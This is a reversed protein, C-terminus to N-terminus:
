DFGEPRELKILVHLQESLGILRRVTVSFGYALVAGILLLASIASWGDNRLDWGLLGFLGIAFWLLINAEIRTTEM